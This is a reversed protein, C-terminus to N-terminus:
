HYENTYYYYYYSNNNNNNNNNNLYNFWEKTNPTSNMDRIILLSATLLLLLAFLQNKHM